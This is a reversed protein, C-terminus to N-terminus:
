FLGAEGQCPQSCWWSGGEVTALRFLGVALTGRPRADRRGSRATGRLLGSNGLQERLWVHWLSPLPHVTCTLAWSGTSLGTRLYLRCAAREPLPLPKSLFVTGCVACYCRPLPLSCSKASPLAGFKVAEGLLFSNCSGKRLMKCTSDAEHLSFM